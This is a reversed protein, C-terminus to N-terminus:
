RGVAARWNLLVSIPPQAADVAPVAVALFYDGAPLSRVPPPGSDTIIRGTLVGASNGRVPGAAAVICLPLGVLIRTM